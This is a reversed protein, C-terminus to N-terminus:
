LEEKGCVGCRGDLVPPSCQEWTRNMLGCQGGSKAREKVVDQAVDTNEKHFAVAVTHVSIFGEVERVDMQNPEDNLAIYEIVERYYGRM